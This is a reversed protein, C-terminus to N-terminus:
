RLAVPLFTSATNVNHSTHNQRPAIRNPTLVQRNQGAGRSRPERLLASSYRLRKQENMASDFLDNSGVALRAPSEDLFAPFSKTSM